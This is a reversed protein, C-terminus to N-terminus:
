TTNVDNQGGQRHQSLLQSAREIDSWYSKSCHDSEFWYLMNACTRVVAWLMSDGSLRYARASLSEDPHGGLITNVSQSLATGLNGIYSM